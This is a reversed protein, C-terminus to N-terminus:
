PCVWGLIACSGSVRVRSKGKATRGEDLASLFMGSECGWQDSFLLGAAELDAKRRPGGLVAQHGPLVMLLPTFVKM